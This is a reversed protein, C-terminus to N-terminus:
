ECSGGGGRVHGRSLLQAGGGVGDELRDQAAHEVDGDVLAERQLVGPLRVFCELRSPRRSRRDQQRLKTRAPPLACPGASPAAQSSAFLACSWCSGAAVNGVNAASYPRVSSTQASSISSDPMVSSAARASHSCPSCPTLLSCAADSALCKRSCSCRGRSAGSYRRKAQRASSSPAPLFIVRRIPAGNIKFMGRYAGDTLVIRAAATILPRFASR